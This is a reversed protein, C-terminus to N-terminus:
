PFATFGPWVAGQYESGDPNFLFTNQDHGREYPWYRDSVNTPNPIYIAADVIPIYHQNSAHLDSVFSKFQDAPFSVPDTTFDRYEYMYDIDTWITELPIGFKRYNEVVNRVVSINTYGWRCQHFGLSWYPHLVPLGVSSVYQQIVDIPTPGVFFYFDFFGGTVRYTLNGPNPVVDMNNTTRLYVGHTGSGTDTYRHEMYVPHFGYLNADVQDAIDAAFIPRVMSNNLRLGHITEGLGYINADQPTQTIIELFQTEFVLKTGRTDFIVQSDSLRTVWFEFPMATYNFQLNASSMNGVTIPPIVAYPDFQRNDTDKISVHLSSNTYARSM